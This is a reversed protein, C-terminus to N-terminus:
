SKTIVTQDEVDSQFSEICYGDSSLQQHGIIFASGNKMTFFPETENGESKVIDFEHNECKPGAGSHIVYSEVIGTEILLPDDDDTESSNNLTSYDFKITESHRCHFDRNDSIFYLIMGQPCCKRVCNSAGLCPDPVCFRATAKLVPELSADLSEFEDVCFEGHPKSIGLEPISLSGNEFLFFKTSVASHVFGDPCTPLNITLQFQSADLATEVDSSYIPPYSKNLSENAPKCYDFGIVYSEDSACCKTIPITACNVSNLTLDFTLM